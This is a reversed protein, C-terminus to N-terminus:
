YRTPHIMKGEILVDRGKANLSSDLRHSMVPKLSLVSSKLIFFMVFEDKKNKCKRNDSLNLM